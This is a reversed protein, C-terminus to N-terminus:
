RKSGIRACLSCAGIVLLIFCLPKVSVLTESKMEVREERIAEFLQSKLRQILFKQCHVTFIWPWDRGSQSKKYSALREKTREGM